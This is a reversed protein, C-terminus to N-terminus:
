QFVVVSDLYRIYIHWLWKITKAACLLTQTRSCQLVQEFSERIRVIINAGMVNQGSGEEEVWVTGMAEYVEMDCEALM